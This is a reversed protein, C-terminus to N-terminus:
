RMIFVANCVRTSIDDAIIQYVGDIETLSLHLNGGKTQNNYLLFLSNSKLSWLQLYVFDVCLSCMYM